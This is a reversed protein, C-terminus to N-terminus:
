DAPIDQQPKLKILFYVFGASIFLDIIGIIIVIHAINYTFAYYGIILAFLSRGCANALPIFKRKLPDFSAYIVIVGILVLDIGATHILLANIPEAPPILKNGGLNLLINMNWLLSFYQRYFFPAVLPLALLINFIGSLLLFYKFYNIYKSDTMKKRVM